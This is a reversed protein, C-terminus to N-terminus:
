RAAKDAAAAVGGSLYRGEFIARRSKKPGKAAPIALSPAPIM